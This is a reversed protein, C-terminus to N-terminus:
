GGNTNYKKGASGGQDIGVADTKMLINDARKTLPIYVACNGFPLRDNNRRNSNQRKGDVDEREDQKQHEMFLLPWKGEAICYKNNDKEEKCEGRKTKDWKKDEYGQWEKGSSKGFFLKEQGRHHKENNGAKQNPCHIIFGFVNFM